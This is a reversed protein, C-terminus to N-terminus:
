LVPLYASMRHACHDCRRHGALATLGGLGHRHTSSTARLRGRRSTQLVICALTSIPQGALRLPTGFVGSSCSARIPGARALCSHPLASTKTVSTRQVCWDGSLVPNRYTDVTVASAAHLLGFLALPVLAM